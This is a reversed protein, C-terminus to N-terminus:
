LTKDKIQGSPTKQEWEATKRWKKKTKRERIREREVRAESIIYMPGTLPLSEEEM